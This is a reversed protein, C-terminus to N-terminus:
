FIEVLRMHKLYRRPDEQIGKILANLNVTLSDMNQYLSPDNVMLGLTGEGTDIKALISSISQTSKELEISITDLKTSFQELNAIMSNLDEKSSDSVEKMNAITARVDVIMSDVETQRSEIVERLAESTRQFNSITETINGSNDDQLVVMRRLLDNTLNLTTSVSDAIQPAKDTVSDLLGSEKTGEIYGGWEIYQEASSKIISIKASGLLAPSQLQAESGVPIPIPEKINLVVEISDKEQLYELEKVSGILLGGLTVASGKNLGEVSEYRVHLTKANQFFPENKMVRFGIWVVIMAALVVIGIKVENSVKNM